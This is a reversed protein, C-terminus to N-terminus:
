CTKEDLATRIQDKVPAPLDLCDLAKKLLFRGMKQGEPTALYRDITKQGEPSSLFKRIAEQGEPSTAYGAIMAQICDM